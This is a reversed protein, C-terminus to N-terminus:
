VILSECVYAAETSVATDMTYAFHLEVYMRLWVAVWKLEREKPCEDAFCARSQHGTAKVIAVAEEDNAKTGIRRALPRIRCMPIKLGKLARTGHSYRWCLLPVVARRPGVTSVQSKGITREVM